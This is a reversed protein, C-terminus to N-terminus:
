DNSGAILFSRFSSVTLVKEFVSSLFHPLARFPSQAAIIGTSVCVSAYSGLARLSQALVGGDTSRCQCQRRLQSCGMGVM